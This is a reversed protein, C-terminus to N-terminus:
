QHVGGHNAGPVTGPSKTTLPESAPAPPIPAAGRSTFAELSTLSAPLEIRALQRHRIWVLLVRRWFTRPHLEVNVTVHAGGPHDAVAWTWHAYSPNGDDTASRYGFRRRTLDLERVTARSHWSQGLAHMQVVWEGGVELAQPQEIVGTIARNWDPLRSIDTIVSFVEDAPADIVRSATAHHTM